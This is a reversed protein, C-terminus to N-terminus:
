DIDWIADDDSVHNGM